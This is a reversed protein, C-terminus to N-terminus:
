TASGASWAHVMAMAVPSAGRGRWLGGRRWLPPLKFTAAWLMAEVERVWLERDGLCCSRHRSRPRHCCWLLYCVVEPVSAAPEVGSEAPLFSCGVREACEEVRVGGWGECGLGESPQTDERSAWRAAGLSVM